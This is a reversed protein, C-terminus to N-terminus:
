GGGVTRSRRLASTPYSLDAVGPCPCDAYGAETVQRIRLYTSGNVDVVTIFPRNATPYRGYTRGNKTVTGRKYRPTHPKKSM